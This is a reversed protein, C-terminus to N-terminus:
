KLSNVLSLADSSIQKKVEESDYKPLDLQEGSPVSGNTAKYHEQDMPSPTDHTFDHFMEDEFRIVMESRDGFAIKNVDNIYSDIWGHKGVVGGIAECYGRSLIQNMAGCNDFKPILCYPKGPDLPKRKDTEYKQSRSGGSIVKRVYMDWGLTNIFHDECFYIIWDGIAKKYLDNFYVHLGDRGLGYDERFFKVGLKEFHAILDDNWTDNENMMILIEITDLDVTNRFYGFLFKSLYKSNNRASVLVSIKPNKFQM